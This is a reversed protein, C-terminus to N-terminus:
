NYHNTTNKKYRNKRRIKKKKKLCFVAYSIRMLSQLESTHEESRQQQEVLGGVVEVQVRHQPQFLPQELVRARQQQDAVVALEEVVDAGVGQVQLAAARLQVDAVVGGELALAGLLQALLLDRVVLFLDFARVQLAEDVTELGLGALGLLRLAPHLAQGLEGAGLRHAGLALHPDLEGRRRPQRM